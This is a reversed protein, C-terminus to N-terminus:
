PQKKVQASVEAIKAQIAKSLEDVKLKVQDLNEKPVIKEIEVTAKEYLGQLHNVSEAYGTSARTNLESAQKVIDDLIKRLRVAEESTDAAGKAKLEEFSRKVDGVATAIFGEGSRFLAIGANLVDQLVKEVNEM